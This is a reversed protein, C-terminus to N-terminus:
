NRSLLTHIYLDFKQNEITSSIKKGRERERERERDREGKRHEYDIRRVVGKLNGKKRKKNQIRINSRM